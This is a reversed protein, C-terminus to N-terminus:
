STLGRREREIRARRDIRRIVEDALRSAAVSDLSTAHVGTNDSAHSSVTPERAIDQTSRASSTGAASTAGIHPTERTSASNTPSVLWVLDVPRRMAISSVSRPEATHILSPTAAALTDRVRWIQENSRRWTAPPPSSDFRHAAQHERMPGPFMQTVPGRTQRLSDESGAKVQAYVYRKTSTFAAAAVPSRLAMSTSILLVSGSANRGAIRAQALLQTGPQLHCRTLISQGAPLYPPKALRSDREGRLGRAQGAARELERRKYSTCETEKRAGMPGRLRRYDMRVMRARDFDPFAALHFHWHLQYLPRTPLATTRVAGNSWEAVSRAWRLLLPTWALRPLISARSWLTRQSLLRKLGPLIMARAAAHATLVFPRQAGLMRMVSAGEGAPNRTDSM